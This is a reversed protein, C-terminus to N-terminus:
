SRRLTVVKGPEAEGKVVSEVFDGWRQLADRTEESLPDVQYVGSVGRYVGSRHNLCREIVEARVGLRQM